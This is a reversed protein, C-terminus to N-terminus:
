FVLINSWSYTSSKDTLILYKNLSNDIKVESWTRGSPFLCRFPFCCDVPCRHLACYTHMLLNICKSLVRFMNSPNSPNLHCSNLILPILGSISKPPCIPCKQFHTSTVISLHPQFCWSHMVNTKRLMKTYFKCKESFIANNM